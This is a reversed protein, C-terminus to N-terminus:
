IMNKLHYERICIRGNFQKYYPAFWNNFLLTERELAKDPNLNNLLLITLTETEAKFIQLVVKVDIFIKTAETEINSLMELVEPVELIEFENKIFSFVDPSVKM